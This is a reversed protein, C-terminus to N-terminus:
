QVISHPLFVFLIPLNFSVFPLLVSQDSNSAIGLNQWYQILGYIFQCIWINITEISITDCARQLVAKLEPVTEQRFVAVARKLIAWFNRM